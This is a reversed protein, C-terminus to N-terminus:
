AFVKFLLGLILLVLSMLFSGCVPVAMVSVLNDRELKYLLKEVPKTSEAEMNVTIRKYSLLYGVFAVLFVLFLFSSFVFSLNALFNM